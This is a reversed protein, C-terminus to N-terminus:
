FERSVLLHSRRVFVCEHHPLLMSHRELILMSEREREGKDAAELIRLYALVQVTSKVDFHCLEPSLFVCVVVNLMVYVCLSSLPRSNFRPFSVCSGCCVKKNGRRSKKGM